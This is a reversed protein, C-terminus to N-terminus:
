AARGDTASLEATPPGAKRRAEDLAGKWRARDAVVHLLRHEPSLYDPDAPTVQAWTYRAPDPLELGLTQVLWAKRDARHDALTKGSGQALVPRPPRRLRLARAPAGQGQV